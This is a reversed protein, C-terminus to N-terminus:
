RNNSKNEYSLSELLLVDRAPLNEPFLMFIYEDDNILSIYEKEQWKLLVPLVKNYNARFHKNVIDMLDWDIIPTILYINDRYITDVLLKILNKRKM